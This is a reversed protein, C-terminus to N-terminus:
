RGPQALSFSLTVWANWGEPRNQAAFEGYAKVNLYANIREGIRFMYGIQPGVGAVRSKFDGLRAGEGSDGTIQNYLYGVAGVHLRENIFYSAGWDLHMDIGNRYETDPNEFNYTFGLVASFELESKPDFYTYGGGGDIAAHGTGLNALRNPNYAGVPIGGTGYALFNHVGQNWKLTFQPYLDGFATRADSREGSITNGRPGTLTADVSAESRGAIGTLSLAAQAGLFPTEFTYTPGFFVGDVRASLGSEFRGGRM